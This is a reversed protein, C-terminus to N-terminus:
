PTEYIRMRRVRGMGVATDSSQAQRELKIRIEDGSACSDGNTLAVTAKNSMLSTAGVTVSTSNVVGFSDTEGSVADVNSTICELYVGWNMTGSTASSLFIVDANLTGGNYPSLIDSWTVSQTSTEDFFVGASASSTSNSIYPSNVGPLRANAAQYTKNFFNSGSANVPIGISLGYLRVDGTLDNTAAPDRSLRAFCVDGASWGLSTITATWTAQTVIDQTASLPFNGSTTTSLAGQWSEGNAACYYELDFKANKGSAATVAGIDARFTVNADNMLQPPVRFKFDVYERATDDFLRVASKTTTTSINSLPAFSSQLVQFAAADIYINATGTSQATSSGGGASVTTWYVGLGPGSSALVQGSSGAGSSRDLVPGKLTTSSLFTKAGSSTQTSALIMDGAGAIASLAGGVLEMTASNFPVQGSINTGDTQWTVNVNNSVAVPENDDFDANTTASENVSVGGTADVGDAFGAPVNKLLTWDVPNTSVNIVGTAATEVVSSGAVVYMVGPSLNRMILGTSRVVGYVDLKNVPTNTGIGVNGNSGELFISSNSVSSEIRFDADLGQDNFVTSGDAKLLHDRDYSEVGGFSWDGDSNISGWLIGNTFFDFRNNQTSQIGTGPVYLYYAYAVVSSTFVGTSASFGYPFGATSTANYVSSGGGGSNNDTGPAWNTGDFKLVQGNSPAVNQVLVGGSLTMSSTFNTRTTFTSVNHGIELPGSGYNNSYVGLIPEGSAVEGVVSLTTPASALTGIGTITGTTGIITNGYGAGHGSSWFRDGNVNQISFAEGVTGPGVVLRSGATQDESHTFIIIPREGDSINEIRSYTNSDPGAEIEIRSDINIGGSPSDDQMTLQGKVTGSSVYFTSGNQLTNQNLIVQGRSAVSSFDVTIVATSGSVSLKLADGVSVSATPSSWSGDFNSFVELASAGGGGPPAASTIVGNVNKLFQGNGGVGAQWYYTTGNLSVTGGTVTFTSTATLRDTTFAGFASHALFLLPILLYKKM